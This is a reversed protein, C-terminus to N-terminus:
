PLWLEFVGGNLRGGNYLHVKGTKGANQHVRAVASAFYLGLQTSGTSFNMAGPQVPTHSLMESPYGDGDDAVSLVLFGGQQRAEIDVRTRTYRIANNLINNLVGAVLEADFFGNIDETIIQHFIDHGDLLPVHRAVQSELFDPVFHEEINATLSEVDIRYLGLLQLLDGHVRETEYRLTNFKKSEKATESLETGLEDMTHLLMGLSNKMDHVASALVMSFDIKGPIDPSDSGPSGTLSPPPTDNYEPEDHTM